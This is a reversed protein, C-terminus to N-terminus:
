RYFIHDAIRAVRTRGPMPAGASHFFLAGDAASDGDGGLAETAVRHAVAWRTDNRPPDYSDVNFFQGRQNVVGCATTPFRGDTMRELIVQAVAVQGAIPQNAAEHRIVKAICEIERPDLRPEEEPAAATTPSLPTQVDTTVLVAPTPGTIQEAPPATPTAAWAM